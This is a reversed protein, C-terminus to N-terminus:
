CGDNRGMIASLFVLIAMTLWSLHLGLFHRWSHLFLQGTTRMPLVENPACTWVFVNFFLYMIGSYRVIFHKCSLQTDFHSWLALNDEDWLRQTYATADADLYVSELQRGEKKVCASDKFKINVQQQSDKHQKAISIDRKLKTLRWGAWYGPFPFWAYIRHWNKWVVGTRQM